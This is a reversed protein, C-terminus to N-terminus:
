SAKMVAVTQVYTSKQARSLNPKCEQTPCPIPCGRKGGPCTRKENKNRKVPSSQARRSYLGNHLTRCLEAWINQRALILYNPGVPRGM